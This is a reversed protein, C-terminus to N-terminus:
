TLLWFFVIRLIFLIPPFPPPSKGIHRYVLSCLTVELLVKIKVNVTMVIWFEVLQAYYSGVLHV